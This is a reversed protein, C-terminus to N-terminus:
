KNKSKYNATSGLTSNNNVTQNVNNRYLISRDSTLKSETDTLKYFYGFLILAGAIWFWLRAKTGNNSPTEVMANDPNDASYYVTIKDGKNTLRPLGYFENKYKTEDVTYQITATSAHHKTSPSYYMVKGTTTEATEIFKHFTNTSTGITVAWAGIIICMIGVLIIFRCLLEKSIIPAVSEESEYNNTFFNM